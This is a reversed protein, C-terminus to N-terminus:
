CLLWIQGGKRANCSHCLPQINEIGDHGCRILPVIHDRTLRVKRRCNACRSKYAAVLDLWQQYTHTKIARGARVRAERRRGNERCAIVKTPYKLQSKHKCITSCFVSRGRKTFSPHVEFATGCHTCQREIPGGRWNPNKENSRSKFQCDRSCYHRESRRIHSVYQSFAAGCHDCRITSVRRGGGWRRKATPNPRGAALDLALIGGAAYM